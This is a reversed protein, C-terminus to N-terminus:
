LQYMSVRRVRGIMEVGVRKLDQPQKQFLLLKGFIDVPKEGGSKEEVYKTPILWAAEETM